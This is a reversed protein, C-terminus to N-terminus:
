SNIKRSLDILDKVLVHVLTSPNDSQANKLILNSNKIAIYTKEKIWPYIDRIEEKDYKKWSRKIRKAVEASNKFPSTTQEFHLLVWFEFCPVSNIAIINLKKNRKIADLTTVYSEHNDKDFVCYARDYDGYEKLKKLTHEYVSAPASGCEEGIIDVTNTVRM